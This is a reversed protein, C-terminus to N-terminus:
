YLILGAIGCAIIMLIPNAHYKKTGIFAILFIIISIVFTYTDDTPSGFNEVNMLVLAASALLGVVAPRLGSFVAEVAPHKQYKLFFKSITLMLIFSPLVVAFTAIVSGWISGTATFGVYTAANIGIPGPTSQSIAVIDTFEQTSVWDYRTVVEGQIMSLMAYGGGFGFLGIKFFTYFLQLYIM